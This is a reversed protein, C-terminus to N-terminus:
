ESPIINYLIKKLTSRTPQNLTEYFHNQYYFPAFNTNILPVYYPLFLDNASSMIILYKLDSFRNLLIQFLMLSQFGSFARAGLNYVNTKKMKSLYSAITYDDSSAGVGFATSGGVITIENTSKASSKNILTYPINEKDQTTSYRLGFSDTNVVQSKFNSKQLFMLYPKWDHGLVDYIKMQPSLSYRVSLKKGM